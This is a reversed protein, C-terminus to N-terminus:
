SMTLRVVAMIALISKKLLWWAMPTGSRGWDEALM